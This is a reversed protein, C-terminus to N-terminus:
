DGQNVPEAKILFLRMVSQTHHDTSRFLGGLLPLDGLLPIKNQTTEDRDQVFGGLLLSEGSKLTAQTSIESNQVQPLPESRSVAQSQQGDQINLDLMVAQHGVEDILRPTVRLLSGTTVSELKAVKDGELKTYFTVNKDLVAQVNNLTVVSPRSLVKAKSNKELANLRMMFNGTNGIVTSFNDSSDGSNFSVSGGGLKASASWDIGLQKFDSADVDFISVSVEIMTPKTDLQRILSGYTAMDRASGRVIIANQRPDAAFVPGSINSVSGAVANAVQTGQDMEKLVTVLGPISVPQSRYEYISDTASAYKLPYVKVTEQNETTQKANADLQATLKTVSNICEPVGTVQLGSIGAMSKINCVGKDLVGASRLYHDVKTASLSTLPLVESNIESAKYVYLVENNYYWVLGYRRTLDQIVSKPDQEQIQGIYNDNVKNSVIVPVGYNNAFDQIVSALATGRSIMVFPEGQWKINTLPAAQVLGIQCLLLLSLLKKM